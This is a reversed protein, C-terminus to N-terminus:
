IKHCRNAENYHVSETNLLGLGTRLVNFLSRLAAKFEPAASIVKFSNKISNRCKRSIMGCDGKLPQGM